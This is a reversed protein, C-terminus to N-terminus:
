FEYRVGLYYSVGSRSTQSITTVGGVTKPVSTNKSNEYTLETELSIQNRVRYIGRVGTSWTDTDGSLSSSMTYYKLSPEVQWKDGLSTLNNYSLLVNHDTPSGGFSVNFVHTDRTSYLNTGILQVGMGWQNGTAAQGPITQGDYFFAPVADVSSLSFNAGTQWKPTLTTTGGVQFLNQYPTTNTVRDRLNELSVAGVLLDQIRKVQAGNTTGYFLTNGLSLIPSTRRDFMANLSTADSVQWTSQFAVVNVKKMMQDYDLQGSATVGGKFYRLDAGVGRRDIEGDITQEIFFASGSLEKTLAEADVSLGYFSRKADLLDDSPTGAVANVKWKPKVYYGAQVGDFRYMVGGGNPSQRGVRVNGGLTMSKYDFYLASLREKNTNKVYDNTTTDRFVFRMDKEADRLRWNLDYSTQLQKQDSLTATPSEQPTPLGNNAFANSQTQDTSRGGYYFMSVSGSAIGKAAEVPKAETPAAAAPAPLSALLQRVRDSDAGQPYLKLFLGFESAARAKDGANLRALGALEQARRSSQNPPLNLLQNLSETAADYQGADFAAQAKVLLGTASSEVEASAAVGSASPTAAAMPEPTTPMIKTSKVAITALQPGLGALVIEISKNYKRGTRVKFRTPKDFQIVLRRQVDNAVSASASEDRVIITPIVGEGYLRKEGPTLSLVERTPLVTYFSQVLDSARATISKTYQVPTVFEIVAVADSGEQRWEVEDLVQAQAAGAFLACLCVSM